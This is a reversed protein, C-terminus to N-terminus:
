AQATSPPIPAQMTDAICLAACLQPLCAAPVAM